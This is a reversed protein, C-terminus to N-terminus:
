VNDIPIEDDDALFDLYVHSFAVDGGMARWSEKAIRPVEEPKYGNNCIADDYKKANRKIKMDLVDKPNLGLMDCLRFALFLVDGIESAVTFVDGTVMAEDIGDILEQAEEQIYKAVTEPSDTNQWARRNENQIHVSRITSELTAM